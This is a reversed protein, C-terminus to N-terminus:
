RLPTVLEGPDVGLLRDARGERVAIEVLGLSGVYHFLQDRPAAAFTLASTTIEHGRIRLGRLPPKLSTVLNGWRDVWLVRPGPNRLTKLGGAPRGLSALARGAALRAAAPAFVDRGEFTLSTAAPRDLVVATPREPHAEWIAMSFLGNDPGVFYSGGLEVAVARRDTGVGPDVVALHVSGPPFSRTGAWVFFSAAQLDFAPVLHSVDVLM